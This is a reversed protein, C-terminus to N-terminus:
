NHSDKMMQCAKKEDTPFLQNILGNSHKKRCRLGHLVVYFDSGDANCYGVRAISGLPYQYHM